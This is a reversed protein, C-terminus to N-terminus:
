NDSVYLTENAYDLEIRYHALVNGALSGVIPAPMMASMWKEFVGERQSTVGTDLLFGHTAGDVVLETRPFGTEKAVPMPFKDGRPALAGPKALTFAHGPYDFVVHYHRLLRGPFLGDIRGIKPLISDNGIMVLVPVGDLDLRLGGLSAVPPKAVVGLKHGDEESTEGIVLGLEQALPDSLLFGGGGSDVLFRATRTSGDVKQLTLQVYPRNKDVELPVTARDTAAPPAPREVPPPEHHCAAVAVVLALRHVGASVVSVEYV